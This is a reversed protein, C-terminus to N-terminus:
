NDKGNYNKIIIVFEGKQEIVDINLDSVSMTQYQEFAKTLERAFFVISKPHLKEKMEAVIKEIRHVSELIVVPYQSRIISEWTKQRGKKIPLFGLYLFDKPVIGSAVIAPIVSNAGPLVTYEISMEQGLRIIDYGPDSLGPTGADSVLSVISNTKGIRLAKEIETQNFNHSRIIQIYKQDRRIDLLKLLKDTVRPDECIIYQSDELVQKSRLTIDQLNGIPTPVVYLM